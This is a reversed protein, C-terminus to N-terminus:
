EPGLGLLALGAGFVLALEAALTVLPWLVMEARGHDRALRGSILAPVVLLALPIGVAAAPSLRRLDGGEHQLLALVAAAGLVPLLIRLIWATASRRRRRRDASRQRAVARERVRAEAHEVAEWGRAPPGEM